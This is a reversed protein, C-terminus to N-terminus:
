RGPRMEVGGVLIVAIPLVLVSMYPIDAVQFDLLVSDDVELQGVGHDGQHALVADHAPGHDHMGVRIVQLRLGGAFGPGTQGAADDADRLGPLFVRADQADEPLSRWHRGNSPM